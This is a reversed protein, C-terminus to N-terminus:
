CVQNYDPGNSDIGTWNNMMQNLEIGKMQNILNEIAIERKKFNEQQLISKREHSCRSFQITQQPGHQQSGHQQPGHQQPGLQECIKILSVLYMQLVLQIIVEGLTEMKDRLKSSTEEM